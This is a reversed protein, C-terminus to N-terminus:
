NTVTGSAGAMQRVKAALDHALHRQLAIRTDPNANIYRGLRLWLIDSVSYALLLLVNAAHIFANISMTSKERHFNGQNRLPRM